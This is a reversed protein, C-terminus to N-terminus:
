HAVEPGTQPLPVTSDPSCHSGGPATVVQVEIPGKIEPLAVQLAPQRQFVDVQMLEGVNVGLVEYRFTIRRPTM